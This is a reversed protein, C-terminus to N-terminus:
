RIIKKVYPNGKTNMYNMKELMEAELEDLQNLLNVIENNMGFQLLMSRLQRIQELADSLIYDVNM